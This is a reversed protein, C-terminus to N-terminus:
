GDFWGEGDRGQDFSGIRSMPQFHCCHLGLEFPNGKVIDEPKIFSKVNLKSANGLVRQARSNVDPDNLGAADCTGPAIQHLLVTYAMSDKVDGGFNNVRKGYKANKLHYNFWRLLLQDPPLKLLDALEEGDELLRLLEPHNKLNITNLLQLKVLQWVLGLIIHPHENGKLLEAAGVNVVTVGISKAASIVLNLNENIQFLTLKDKKKNLAREDITDPVAVNIFKALLIGDRVKNCLDVNDTKVPMLYDLDPDQSLCNNMHEAFAIMEEEAFSHVGTAGKVQIMKKHEKVVQGFGSSDVKNGTKVEAVLKVFEEWEVLGNNNHDVEAILAKVQDISKYMKLNKLVEQLENADIFQDGDTDMASFQTKLEKLEADSFPSAM